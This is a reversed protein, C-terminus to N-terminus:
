AADTVAVAAAAAAARHRCVVRGPQECCLNYLHATRRDVGAWLAREKERAGESGLLLHLRCGCDTAAVV